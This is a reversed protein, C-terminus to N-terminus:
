LAPEMLLGYQRYDYRRLSSGVMLLDALKRLLRGARDSLLLTSVLCFLVLAPYSGAVHFHRMLM